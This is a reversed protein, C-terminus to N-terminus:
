ISLMSLQQDILSELKKQRGYITYQHTVVFQQEM